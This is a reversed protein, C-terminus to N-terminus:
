QTVLSLWPKERTLLFFCLVFNPTGHRRYFKGMGGREAAHGSEVLTIERSFSAAPAFNLTTPTQVVEGGRGEKSCSWVWGPNNERSFSSAPVFNPTGPHRSLKGVGGRGAVRGSEVLSIREHSPLLLSFINSNQADPCSGWGEREQQM